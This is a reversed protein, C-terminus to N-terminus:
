RPGCPASPDTSRGGRRGPPASLRCGSAPERPAWLGPRPSCRQRQPGLRSRLQGSNQVVRPLAPPRGAAAAQLSAANLPQELSLSRTPSRRSARSWSGRFEADSRSTAPSSAGPQSPFPAPALGQRLRGLHPCRPLPPRFFHSRALARQLALSLSPSGPLRPSPLRRSPRSRESCSPALPGSGSLKAGAAAHLLRWGLGALKRQLHPGLAGM